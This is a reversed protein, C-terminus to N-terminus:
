MPVVRQDKRPINRPLKWDEMPQCPQDMNLGSCIRQEHKSPSGSFKVSLCHRSISSSNIVSSWAFGDAHYHYSELFMWFNCFWLIETVLSGSPGFGIKLQIAWVPILGVYASTTQSNPQRAREGLVEEKEWAILTAAAPPLQPAKTSWHNQQLQPAAARRQPAHQEWWM